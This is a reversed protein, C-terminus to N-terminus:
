TKYKESIEILTEELSLFAKSVDPDYRKGTAEMLIKKTEAFNFAPKYVRKSTMADFADAFAVIRASLPIEEGKKGFPYGTGDYNEHHYYAIDKGITLFSEIGLKKDAASLANGGIITHRKMIAWEEEDFQGPKLLINDPIGVKGIDHLVSSTYISDIYNKTIYFKYKDWKSLEEALLKSYLSMRELHEGTEKDRYEALKSLGLIAVNQIDTVVRMNTELEKSYEILEYQLIRNQQDSREIAHVFLSHILIGGSIIFLWIILWGIYTDRSINYPAKYLDIVAKIKGTDSFVVPVSLRFIKKAQKILDADRKDVKTFGYGINDELAKKFKKDNSKTGIIKENDSWIVTGTSDFVKIRLLNFITKMEIFEDKINGSLAPAKGGDKLIFDKENSHKRIYSRVFHSITDANHSQIQRSLYYSLFGGLIIASAFILAFSTLALKATPNKPDKVKAIYDRILKM